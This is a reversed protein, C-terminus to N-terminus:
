PRYRKGLVSRSLADWDSFDPFRPDHDSVSGSTDIGIFDFGLAATARRDGASDGIYTVSAFRATRAPALARDHSARM